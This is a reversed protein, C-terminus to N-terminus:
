PAPSSSSCDASESTEHKYPLSNSLLEGAHYIVLLEYKEGPPPFIKPCFKYHKVNKKFLRKKLWTKTKEDQIKRTLIAVESYPATFESACTTELARLDKLFFMPSSFSEQPVSLFNQSNPDHTLCFYNEVSGNKEQFSSGILDSLAKMILRRRHAYSNDLLVPLQDIYKITLHYRLDKHSSLYDHFAYHQIGAEKLKKEYYNKDEEKIGAGILSFERVQTTPDLGIFFHRLQKNNPLGLIKFVNEALLTEEKSFSCQYQEYFEKSEKKSLIVMPIELENKLCRSLADLLSEKETKKLSWESNSCINNWITCEKCVRGFYDNLVFYSKPGLKYLENHNEHHQIFQTVVDVDINQYNDISTIIQKKLYSISPM